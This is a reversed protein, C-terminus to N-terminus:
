RRRSAALLLAMALCLGLLSAPDAISATAPLTACGCGAPEETHNVLSVSTLPDAADIVAADAPPRVVNVVSADPANADHSGPAFIMHPVMGNEFQKSMLSHMEAKAFDPDYSSLVIAHFCSDWLWQYPYTSPSPVTYRFGNTERRNEQLVKRAELELDM